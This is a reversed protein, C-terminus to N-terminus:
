EERGLLLCIQNIEGITLLGFEGANTAIDMEVLPTQFALRQWLRLAALITADARAGDRFSGTGSPREPRYARPM